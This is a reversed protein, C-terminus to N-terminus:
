APVGEGLRAAKYAKWKLLFDHEYENSDGDAESVIALIGDVTTWHKVGVHEAYIMAGDFDPPILRLDDMLDQIDKPFHDKSVGVIFEKICEMEATTVTGDCGAMAFGIASLNVYFEHLTKQDSLLAAAREIQAQLDQMQVAAEAGAKQQGSAFAEQQASETTAQSIAAGAGAGAVAAATAIGGAGALSALLTAGGFVSGGGTFPAAAVAGVGVVLGTAAALPNNKLTTWITDATETVSALIGSDSEEVKAVATDAPQAMKGATATVTEKKGSASKFTARMLEAYEDSTSSM